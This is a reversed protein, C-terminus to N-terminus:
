LLLKQVTDSRSIKFNLSITPVQISSSAHRLPLTMSQWAVALPETPVTYFGLKMDKALSLSHPHRRSIVESDVPRLVCGVLM